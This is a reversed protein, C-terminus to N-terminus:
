REGGCWGGRLLRGGRREGGGDWEEEELLELWESEERLLEPVPICRQINSPTAKGIERCPSQGQFGCAKSISAFFKQTSPYLFTRHWSLLCAKRCPSFRFFATVRKIIHGSREPPVKLHLYGRIQKQVATKPDVKGTSCM